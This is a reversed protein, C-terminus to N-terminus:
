WNDHDTKIDKRFSQKQFTLVLTTDNILFSCPTATYKKCLNM